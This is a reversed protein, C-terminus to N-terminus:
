KWKEFIYDRLQIEERTIEILARHLAKRRALRFADGQIEDAGAGQEKMRKLDAVMGRGAYYMMAKGLVAKQEAETVEIQDALGADALIEYFRMEAIPSVSPFWGRYKYHLWFMVLDRRMRAANERRDKEPISSTEPKPAAQEARKLAAARKGKYANLIRCVYEASFQQFHHSDSDGRWNKPLYGELEGAVAMEFALRFDEVTLTDFYRKLLQATRVIIYQRDDTGKINYGIDRAIWDIIKALEAALEELGYTIVQRKVSAGLILRESRDLTKVVDPMRALEARPFLGQYAVIENM